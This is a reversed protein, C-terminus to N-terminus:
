SKPETKDNKLTVFAWQLYNKVVKTDILFSSSFNRKLILKFKETKKKKKKVESNSNYHFVSFTEDAYLEYFSYTISVLDSISTRRHHNIFLNAFVTALPSGM